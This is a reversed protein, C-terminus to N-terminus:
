CTWATAKMDVWVAGSAICDLVMLAGVEHTAQALASVYDDRILGASTEVHPSSRM